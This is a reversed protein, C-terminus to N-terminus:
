RRTNSSIRAVGSRESIFRRCEQATSLRRYLDKEERTLDDQHAVLLQERLQFDLLELRYRDFREDEATGLYQRKFSPSMYAGYTESWHDPRGASPEVPEDDLGGGIEPAPRIGVPPTPAEPPAGNCGLLGYLVLSVIAGGLRLRIRGRVDTM